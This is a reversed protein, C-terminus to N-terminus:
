NKGFKNALALNFAFRTFWFYRDLGNSASTYPDFFMSTAGLREGIIVGELDGFVALTKAAGTTYPAQYVM